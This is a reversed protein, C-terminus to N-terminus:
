KVAGGYSKYIRAFITAAEARTLNSQPLFHNGSGSIIGLSSLKDVHESAYASISKSDDFVVPYAGSGVSRYTLARSIITASDQRTIFSNPNFYEGDGKAIGLSYLASIYKAFWDNSSVDKFEGNYESGLIAFVESALKSLEARSVYADPRFTKDDYGNIAGKSALYYIDDEAWHGKTDSFYLDARGANEDNFEPLTVNQTFGTGSTGGFGGSGGSSGGTETKDSKSQVKVEDEFMKAVASISKLSRKEEFMKVFVNNQKKGSLDEFKDLASQSISFGDCNETVYDWLESVTKCARLGAVLSIEDFTLFKESWDTESLLKDIESKNLHSAYTNYDTDLYGAYKKMVDDSAKGSAFQSAMLAYHYTEVFSSVTFKKEPLHSKLSYCLSIADDGYITDYIFLKNKNCDENMLSVLAKASSAKNVSDIFELVDDGTADYVVVEGHLAEKGLETGIYVDYVGAKFSESLSVTLSIVGDAVAHVMDAVVFEGNEDAILLSAAEGRIIDCEGGAIIQNKESDYYISAGSGNKIETAEYSADSILLKEFKVNKVPSFNKMNDTFFVKAYVAEGINTELCLKGDSAFEGVDSHSVSTIQGAYNELVAIMVATKADPTSNFVDATVTLKEDAVSFDVNGIDFDAKPTQLDYKTWRGTEAMKVLIELNVGSFVKTNTNLRVTKEDINECSVIELKNNEFKVSVDTTSIKGVEESFTIDIHKDGGSASVIKNASKAEFVKYNDIWLVSEGTKGVSVSAFFKQTELIDSVSLNQEDSLEGNIFLYYTANELNLVMAVNMWKSASDSDLALGLRKNGSVLQGSKLIKLAPTSARGHDQTKFYISGLNREASLDQPCVDYSFVAYGSTVVSQFYNLQANDGNKVDLKLSKGFDADSDGDYKELSASSGNKGPNLILNHGKSNELPKDADDCVTKETAGSLSHSDFDVDWVTETAVLDLYELAKSESQYLTLASVKPTITLFCSVVILIFILPFSMYRYIIKKM